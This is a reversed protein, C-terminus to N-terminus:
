KVRTFNFQCFIKEIGTFPANAFGANGTGGSNCKGIAAFPHHEDARVRCRVKLIYERHLQAVLSRRDWVHWVQDHCVKIRYLRCGLITFTHNCGIAALQGFRDNGIHFFLKGAGAGNFNGREVFKGSENCVILHCPFVVVNNEVRCGCPMSQTHKLKRRCPAIEDTFAGM